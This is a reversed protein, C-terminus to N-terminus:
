KISLRVSEKILSTKTVNEAVEPYLEKLKKSDITQKEYPAIITVSVNKIDLKTANHEKMVSVISNLVSKKQEELEDILAKMEVLRFEIASAISLDMESVPIIMQESHYKDTYLMDYVDNDSKRAVEILKWKKTKKNLHVAYLKNAKNDGNLEFLYANISLQWSLYEKDLTTSTKFDYLNFNSDIMDTMTAYIKMDSVIFENSQVTINNKNKLEIYNRIEDMDDYECGSDLLEIQKHIYSGYQKASELVNDSVYLYKDKFLISSGLRSTIGSLKEGNMTYTHEIENFIINLKKLM